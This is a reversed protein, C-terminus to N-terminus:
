NGRRVLVVGAAITWGIGVPVIVMSLGLPVPLYYPLFSAIGAVAAVIGWSQLWGPAWLDRGSWGLMAPGLGVILATAVGDARYAYWGILEALRVEVADPSSSGQVVIALWAVFASIALPVAATYTLGALDGPLNREARLGAMAIGGAGLVLVGLIWLSLNVVLARRHQEAMELYAQIEGNMLAADLDTGTTIWVVAGLLMIGAGSLALAGAARHRHSLSKHLPRQPERPEPHPHQSLSPRHSPLPSPHQPPHESSMHTERPM